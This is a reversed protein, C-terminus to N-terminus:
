FKFIKYITTGKPQLRILGPSLNRRIKATYLKEGIELGEPLELREHGIKYDQPAIM